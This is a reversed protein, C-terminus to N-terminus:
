FEIEYILMSEQEKVAQKEMSLKGSLKAIKDIACATKLSMSVTSSSKLELKKSQISNNKSCRMDIIRKISEDNAFWKLAPVKPKIGGEFTSITKASQKSKEKNSTNINASLSGKKIKGESKQKTEESENEIIEISCRKAGLSFAIHELEAIKEQIAMSFVCTIDIFKNRDFSDICYINDCKIVPLFKLNSESIFEDYIYLIEVGGIKNTWGIAGNCVDVNKREADDVIKIVNPVNFSDSHFVEPFLPNYKEVKKTHSDNKIKESIAGVEKKIGSGIKKSLNATKHLIESLKGKTDKKDEM